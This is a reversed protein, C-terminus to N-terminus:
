ELAGLDKHKPTKKNKYGVAMAPPLQNWICVAVSNSESKNMKRVNAMTQPEVFM